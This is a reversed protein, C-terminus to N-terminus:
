TRAREASPAGEKSQVKEPKCVPSLPLPKKKTLQHNSFFFAGRVLVTDKSFNSLPHSRTLDM